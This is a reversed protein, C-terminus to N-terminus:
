GITFIFRAANITFAAQVHAERGPRSAEVPETSCSAQLELRSLSLQAHPRQSLGGAPQLGRRSFPRAINAISQSLRPTRTSRSVETAVLTSSAMAAARVLASATAARWRSRSGSLKRRMSAVPFTTNVTMSPFALRYPVEFASTVIECGFDAARGNRDRKHHIAVTKFSRGRRSTPGKEEEGVRFHRGQGAGTLTSRAPASSSPLALKMGAAM